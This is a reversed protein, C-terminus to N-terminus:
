AHPGYWLSFAIYANLLAFAISPLAQHWPDRIKLRVMFGLLMLIFLGVASWLQLSPSMYLGVLLGLAGLCQLGGVLKRFADLGYRM